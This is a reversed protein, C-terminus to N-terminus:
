REGLERRSQHSVRESALTGHREVLDGLVVDLAPIHGADNCTSRAAVLDV